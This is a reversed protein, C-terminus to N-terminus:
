ARAAHLPVVEGAPAARGCFAAWDAMLRRRKEVLDGRQYAAETKDRLTHALAAEAVERPYNTAEACWDRFTSRFGHATMDGRGMRRLLVLMAMNSLPKGAKGGPFVFAGDADYAADGGRAAGGPRRRVVAGPAGPWGEHAGSPRDM